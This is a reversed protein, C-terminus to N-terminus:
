LRNKRSSTTLHQILKTLMKVIRRYEDRLEYFEHQTLYELDLAVYLHSTVELASSKSTYLFNAFDKDTKRGYGEAINAMVSVAARRTQDILGFDRKYASNSTAEYIAATLRRANKWADIDEFCKIRGM